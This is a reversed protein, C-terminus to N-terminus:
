LQTYLHTEYLESNVIPPPPQPTGHPLHPERTLLTRMEERLCTILENKLSEFEMPTMLGASSNPSPIEQPPM